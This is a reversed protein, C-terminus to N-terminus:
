NAGALLLKFLDDPGVRRVGQDDPEFFLPRTASDLEPSNKHWSALLVIVDKSNFLNDGNLDPFVFVSHTGTDGSVIGKTTLSDFELPTIDIRWFEAIQTFLDSIEPEGFDGAAANGSLEPRLTWNVGDPGEYWEFLYEIVDGDADESLVDFAVALGDDPTPKEPLIRVVPQTPPTNLITVPESRKEVSSLGDAIQVECFISDEKKTFHHSLTASSVGFTEGEVELEEFILDDNKFWRLSLSFPTENGKAPLGSNLCELDDTTFPSAPQVEATLDIILPPFLQASEFLYVRGGQEGEEEDLQLDGVVVEGRGDGNVDPVGSVSGGLAGYFIDPSTLTHLRQGTMGSFIYARGEPDLSEFKAGVVIDGMGDLDIDSIGSVSRGFNAGAENTDPLLTHLLDGTSGSFVHARGPWETDTPGEQHAGVVVDEIGDGNLDQVNSVSEGFFGVFM